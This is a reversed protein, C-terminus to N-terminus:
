LSEIVDNMEFLESHGEDIASAREDLIRKHLDPIDLPPPLSASLAEILDRRQEESLSAIDVGHVVM